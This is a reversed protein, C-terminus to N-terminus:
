NMLLIRVDRVNTGTAGTEITDGCRKFFGYSDSSKLFEAANLNLSRARTLTTEDTTAGAAPSNGDVGDTGAYLAMFKAGAFERSNKLEDFLIATRLASELSRGGIGPGRVPCIFEGGSILAVPKECPTKRRLRCLREVLQTCGDGIENEILDGAIEAEFGKSSLFKRAQELANRNELLVFFESNDFSTQLDSGNDDRELCKLVSPPLKEALEYRRIIVRLEPASTNKEPRITLGSAVNFAEGANTDSVILTLRKSRPAFDSLGGGKVKSIRRRLANMEGITAGCGVFVRNAAQLEALTISDDFPMEFMASGGGSVLFIILTKEGDVTRLLKEAAKAAALSEENPLPHGGRFFKWEGFFESIASDGAAPASITGGRLYEGLVQRLGQAMPLAAKGVAIAYIGSLENLLFERGTINLLNGQLSVANEVANQADLTRLVSDFTDKILFNLDPAYSQM